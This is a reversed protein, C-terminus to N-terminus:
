KFKIILKNEKFPINKGNHVAYIDQNEIKGKWTIYFPLQYKDSFENMRRMMNVSFKGFQERGSDLEIQSKDLPMTAYQIGMYSDFYGTETDVSPQESGNTKAPKTEKQPLEKPPTKQKPPETSKKQQPKRRRAGQEKRKQDYDKRWQIRALEKQLKEIDRQIEEARTPKTKTKM